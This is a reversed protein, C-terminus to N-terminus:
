DRGVILERSRVGDKPPGYRVELKAENMFPTTQFVPMVIAALADADNGYIYLFGDSLDTAIEHGDYEGVESLADRLADELQYLELLSEHGYEFAVIVAHEEEQVNTGGFIRMLFASASKLLM